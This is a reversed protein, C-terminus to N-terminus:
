ATRMVAVPAAEGHFHHHGHERESRQIRLCLQAAGSLSPLMDPTRILTAPTGERDRDKQIDAKEARSRFRNM